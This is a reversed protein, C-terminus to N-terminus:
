LKGQNKQRYPTGTHSSCRTRVSSRNRCTNPASLISLATTNWVRLIGPHHETIGLEIYVAALLTMGCAIQTCDNPRHRSTEGYNLWMGCKKATTGCDIWTKIDELGLLTRGM